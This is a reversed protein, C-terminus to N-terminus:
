RGPIWLYYFRAGLNEMLRDALISDWSRAEASYINSKYDGPRQYMVVEADRTGGLQEAIAIADELYGVHDVLGLEKAEAADYVRGDAIELVRERSVKRGEAVTDVFRSYMSVVLKQMIGKEEDTPVRFPTGIDKHKGSKITVPEIGLKELMKDITALQAIVGISGTLCTPHCVIKDASMAIYYGGSAAVDMFCAVIPIGSDKRFRKLEEYMIDSATVAGGPSNVRLVIAKIRKDTKAKRLRDKLSAVPSEYRTLLGGRSAATIIGDVELILVKDKVRGEKISVEEVPGPPAFLAMNFSCGAFVLFALLILPRKM